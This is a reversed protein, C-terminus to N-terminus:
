IETCQHCCSNYVVKAITIFSDRSYQRHIACTRLCGELILNSKDVQSDLKQYYYCSCVLKMMLQRKIHMEENSHFKIYKNIIIINVTRYLAIYFDILMNAFRQQPYGEELIM